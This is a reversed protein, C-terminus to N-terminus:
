ASKKSGDQLEKRRKKAAERANDAWEPTGPVPGKSKDETTVKKHEVYLGQLKGVETVCRLITTLSDSGAIKLVLIRSMVSCLEDKPMKKKAALNELDKQLEKVKDKVKRPM